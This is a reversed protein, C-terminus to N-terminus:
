KGEGPNEPATVTFAATVPRFTQDGPAQEPEARGIPGAM